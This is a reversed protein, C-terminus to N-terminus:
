GAAKTGQSKLIEILETDNLIPMCNFAALVPEIPCALTIRESTALIVGLITGDKKCVIAGGDGILAFPKSGSGTILFVNEYWYQEGWGHVDQSVLVNEILGRTLGRAGVKFVEQGVLELMEEGPIPSPRPEYKFAPANAYIKGFGIQPKVDKTLTAIAAEFQNFEVTGDAISALPSSPKPLRYDTVTAIVKAAAKKSSSESPSEGALVIRDGLAMHPGGLASSTTLLAIANTEKLHVFCGLTGIRDLPLGGETPPHGPKGINKIAIGCILALYEEHKTVPPVKSPTRSKDCYVPIGFFSDKQSPSLEAGDLPRRVYRVEGQKVEVGFLDYSSTTFFRKAALATSNLAYNQYVKIKHETLLPTALFTEDDKYHPERTPDDFDDPPLRADCVIQKPFLRDIAPVPGHRVVIEHVELEETPFQDHKFTVRLPQGPIVPAVEVEGARYRLFGYTRLLFVVFRNLISAGLSLPSTSPSNLYVITDPRLRKTILEKLQEPIKLERYKQELLGGQIDIEIRKRIRLEDFSEVARAKAEDLRAQIQKKSAPNVKVAQAVEEDIKLLKTKIDDLGEMNSLVYVLDAHDFATLSLRIADILGGDGCGTVLYRRPIPGTILPRGFNDNEWYSLFPISPLPKELGFGVALILFDCAKEYNGRREDPRVKREDTKTKVEEPKGKGDESLSGGSLTGEAFVLPRKDPLVTIRRVEYGYYTQVTKEVARWQELVTNCVRAAMDAGWNMCPLDTLPKDSDKQPWDLIHPHVFRLWCGLQLHLPVQKGELLTVSAGLQSAAFAATMGALGAGVVTVKKKDLNNIKHLAWVLNLARQQQSLFTLRMAKRGIWYVNPYEKESMALRELISDAQSKARRRVTKKPRKTVRKVRTKSTGSHTKPM